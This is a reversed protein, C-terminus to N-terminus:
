KVVITDGPQIIINNEPKKGSVIDTYDIEIRQEQGNQRRLVLIDDKDAWETFGGAMALAQLLSMDKTLPFEGTNNIEGILYFTAGQADVIVTVEPGEIFRSLRKTIDETLQKPTRGAAQIDGILSLSIRGDRRVKVTRSLAEERWVQIELVDSVNIQYDQAIIESQANTKQPFLFLTVLCSIFICASCYYRKGCM